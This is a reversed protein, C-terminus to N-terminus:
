FFLQKTQPCFLGSPMRRFNMEVFFPLGEDATEAEALAVGSRGAVAVAADDGADEVVGHALDVFEVVHDREGPFHRDFIELRDGQVLWEADFAPFDAHFPRVWM